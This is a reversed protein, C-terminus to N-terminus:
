KCEKLYKGSLPISADYPLDIKIKTLFRSATKCLTQVLKVNGGVTYSPEKERCRPWCKNNAQKIVLQITYFPITTLKPKVNGKNLM